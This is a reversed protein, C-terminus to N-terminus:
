TRHESELIFQFMKMVNVQIISMSFLSPVVFELCYLSITKKMSGPISGLIQSIAVGYVLIYVVRSRLDCYKILRKSKKTYQFMFKIEISVKTLM